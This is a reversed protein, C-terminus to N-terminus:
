YPSLLLYWMLDRRKWNVAKSQSINWGHYVQMDAVTKEDGGTLHRGALRRHIIFSDSKKESPIEM